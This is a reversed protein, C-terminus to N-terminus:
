ASFQRELYSRVSNAFNQSTLEALIRFYADAGVEDPHQEVHLQYLEWLRFLGLPYNMKLESDIRSAVVLGCAYHKAFLDDTLPEECLTLASALQQSLFTDSMGQSQLYEYAMFEAAGEHIWSDENSFLNGQFLHAVEHAFFWLTENVFDNNKMREYLSHGYWHVFLQSGIVGGQQGYRGDSTSSFSAMIMPRENLAGLRDSFYGMLPPLDRQLSAQLAPPLGPDIITELKTIAPALPGVYVMYGDDASEQWSVAQQGSLGPLRIYDLRQAEMRFDYTLRRADDCTLPCVKFRGSFWAMGGDTFPSFPAYDKLLPIYTPTLSISVQDFPQGDRRALFEENTATDVAVMFQDSVPQWRNVRTHDPARVFVLRDTQQELEYHVSWHTGDTKQMVVRVTETVSADYFHAAVWIIGAGAALSFLLKKSSM